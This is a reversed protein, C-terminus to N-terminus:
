SLSKSAPKGSRRRRLHSAIGANGLVNMAARQLLEVVELAVDIIGLVGGNLIAPLRV